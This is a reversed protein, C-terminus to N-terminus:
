NELANGSDKLRRFRARLRGPSSIAPFQKKMEETNKGAKARPRLPPVIIGKTNTMPKKPEPVVGDSTLGSPWKVASEFLEYDDPCLLDVGGM